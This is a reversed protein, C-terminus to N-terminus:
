YLLPAYQPLGKEWNCSAEGQILPLLYEIMEETIGDGTSTIMESPVSKVKNAVLGIDVLTYETKYPQSALRLISAMKGTEDKLGANAAVAGLQYAEEIDTKSAIHMACRQMLNLQISRVKCGYKEEVKRELYQSVGALQHHGFADTGEVEQEGIYKGSADRIGESVAVVVPRREQLPKALSEMFKEESFPHEPLYVLDPGKDFVGALAASATLWGADRGMVEVVTVSPLRYGYCDRVLEAFTTAVYKAASGFGPTHDIECLDNDITKPAGIVSIDITKEKCYQSLKDVTDMSDNGGIYVFTGVNYKQLVAVIEAYEEANKDAPLKHRCSGLIAAPTHKLSELKKESDFINGIDVLEEQLVGQIGHLSGYVTGVASSKVATSIVGALTANIATTPGGSQAVLLNRMKDGRVSKLCFRKNISKSNM